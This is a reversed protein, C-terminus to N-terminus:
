EVPEGGGMMQQMAGAAGAKIMTEDRGTLKRRKEVIDLQKRKNGLDISNAKLGKITDDLSPEQPKPPGDDDIDPPLLKRLRKAIKLAGPWDQNEAILDMVYTATDPATRVFDLMSEAAEMRQTNFSPGATVVVKYRGQTLDNIIKDGASQNVWVMKDEDMENMVVIQRETDYIKPILDVLIDGCFKVGRKLNDHYTFNAVDGERQRALIAKGSVENGQAGLSADHLSTTAKMEDNSLNCETIEGIATQTVMQRQPPNVGPIHKYKLVAPNSKGIQGWEDEHGELQEDAAMYPAKPALAVTETAATRFYNYMRQPDKAFRILGRLIVEDNIVLEKGFVPIIPIYKGAWDTPGEIIGNGDILYHVVKHTEVKRKREVTPTPNLVTQPYGSGEPAPGKVEIPPGEPNQPDPELHIIEEAAILEDVASDWEDGDVTRGDSLLYLNNTIPEKVWYEAIRVRKEEFWLNTDEGELSGFPIPEKGYRIKYEDRSIMESVIAYRGDRADHEQRAPDLYVNFCNRIPRIFIDLDFSSDDSYETVVRFFGFGNNVAGELATQYAVEADSVNEINRILGAFTEALQPTSGGGYPRIKISLKNLRSENVVQDVFSPLKNITLCPRDELERKAVIAAPWHNRGALMNLDDLAQKRNEREYAESSRFREKAQKVLADEKSISKDKTDVIKGM